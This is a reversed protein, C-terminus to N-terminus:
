IHWARSAQDLRYRMLGSNTTALIESGSMSIIALRSTVGSGILVPDGRQAMLVPCEPIDYKKALYDAIGEVTATGCLEKIARFAERRSSYKNRLDVAVDIGSLAEIAGAAFIGCDFQGYSFDSKANDLLYQNLRTQWTDLRTM